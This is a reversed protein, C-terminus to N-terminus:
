HEADRGRPAATHSQRIEQDYESAKEFIHFIIYDIFFVRCMTSLYISNNVNGDKDGMKMINNLEKDTLNCGVAQFLRKIEEGSIYGDSDSDFM